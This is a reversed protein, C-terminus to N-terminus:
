FRCINKFYFLLFFNHIQNLPNPSCRLTGVYGLELSLINNDRNRWRCLIINDVSPELTLFANGEPLHLYYICLLPNKNMTSRFCTKRTTPSFFSVLYSTSEAFFVDYYMNSHDPRHRSRFFLFIYCNQLRCEWNIKQKTKM